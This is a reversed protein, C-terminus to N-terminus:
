FHERLLNGLTNESFKCRVRRDTRRRQVFDDDLSRKGFRMLDCLLIGEKKAVSRYHACTYVNSGEQGGHTDSLACTLLQSAISAYTTCISRLVVNTLRLSAELVM